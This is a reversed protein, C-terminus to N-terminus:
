NKIMLNKNKKNKLANANLVTWLIMKRQDLDRCKEINDKKDQFKKYKMIRLLITTQLPKILLKKYRLDNIAALIAIRLSLVM